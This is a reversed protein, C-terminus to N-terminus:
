LPKYLHTRIPRAVKKNWEEDDVPFCKRRRLSRAVRSKITRHLGKLVVVPCAVGEETGLPCVTMTATTTPTLIIMDARSILAPGRGPYVGMNWSVNNGFPGGLALDPPRGHRRTGDGRKMYRRKRIEGLERKRVVMGDHFIADRLNSRRRGIIVELIINPVQGSMIDQFTAAEVDVVSEVIWEGWPITEDSRGFSEFLKRRLNIDLVEGGCFETLPSGTALEPDWDGEDVNCQFTSQSTVSQEQEEVEMTGVFLVSTPSDVNRETILKDEKGPSRWPTAAAVAAAM